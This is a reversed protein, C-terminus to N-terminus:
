SYEERQPYPSHLLRLQGVSVHKPKHFIPQLMRTALAGLAHQLTHIDAHRPKFPCSRRGSRHM